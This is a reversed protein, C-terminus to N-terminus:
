KASVLFKAMREFEELDRLTSEDVTGSDAIRRLSLAMDRVASTLEQASLFQACAMSIFGSRTTYNLEAYKDIKCVLEDNLSIQVKM